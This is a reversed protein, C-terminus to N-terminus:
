RAALLIRRLRGLLPEEEGNVIAQMHKRLLARGKETFSSTSNVVLDDEIGMLALASATFRGNFRHTAVTLLPVGAYLCDITKTHMNQVWSDLM